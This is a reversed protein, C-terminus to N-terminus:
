KKQLSNADKEGKDQGAKALETVDNDRSPPADCVQLGFSLCVLLCRFSGPPCCWCRLLHGFGGPRVSLLRAPLVQGKVPSTFCFGAEGSLFSLGRPLLWLKMLFKLRTPNESAKREGTEWTSIFSPGPARAHGEDATQGPRVGAQECAGVRWEM